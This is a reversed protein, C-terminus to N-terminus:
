VFGYARWGGDVTLVSGTIYSAAASALFLVSDAVEETTGLRRQPIRGELKADAKVRPLRLQPAVARICPDREIAASAQSRGRM